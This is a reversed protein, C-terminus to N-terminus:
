APTSSREWRTSAPRPGDDHDDSYRSGYRRRRRYSYDGYDHDVDGLQWLTLLALHAVCGAQEAADFLVEARARDAGKLRDPALGDQTYQHELTVVRKDTGDSERWAGLLEAVRATVARWSPADLGKKRRTRALTVNYVLCLRYGSRLPRVEHPCDAYFAAWSLELGPPPAPFRSRTSGAKTGSWWREAKM